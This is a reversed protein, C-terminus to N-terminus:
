PAIYANLGLKVTKGEVEVGELEVNGRHQRRPAVQRQPVAPLEEHHLPDRHPAREERDEGHDQQGHQVEKRTANNPFTCQGDTKTLQVSRNEEHPYNVLGYVGSLLFILELYLFISGLTKIGM